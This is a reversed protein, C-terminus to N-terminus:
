GDIPAGGGWRCAWMDWLERNWAAFVGQCELLTAFQLRQIDLLSQMADLPQAIAARATELGAPALSPNSSM